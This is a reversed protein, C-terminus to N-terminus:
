KNRRALKRKLAVSGGAGVLTGLITFPEPVATSSAATVNINDFQINAAGGPATPILTVSALNTFGSFNFTELGPTSDTTFSQSVTGGGILNGVFNVPINFGQNPVDALEISALSFAGGGVQTLTTTMGSFTHTLTTSGAFRSTGSGIVTYSVSGLGSTALNNTIEFGSETYLGGQLTDSGSALSEFNIVVAQAPAVALASFAL